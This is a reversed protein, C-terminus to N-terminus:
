ASEAALPRSPTQATEHPPLHAFMSAAIEEARIPLVSLLTDSLGHSDQTFGQLYVAARLREDSRLRYDRGVEFNGLYDQLPALLERHSKREYGTALIVADYLHTEVTGTASDRLTLEIGAADAKAAEVTRRCRFAHRESGAVKQRYFIGYIREILDLDVVSYNTNHFEQILKEREAQPENFVLDTYRPAFIENVFPSDDAPKLVAARLIMDVQVSPYSDNLDIFAEAASQGGGIVAIRMPENRTCPQIAMREIYCAHHFVRADDRLHSFASPIRPTGGTSVVVSRALRFREHGRADASLVKLLEIGAPGQVPEVRTVTEGGARQEAFQDSVWRLYDNYEMRCPYFTGLNTFDILRGMAHLYNVFSYPSTPNRLTVLDKLFSIQLESQAVLTNGHWRYDAQKDLFLAHYHRGERRAQEQLAIALALNSPGFGIGLVDYTPTIMQTM